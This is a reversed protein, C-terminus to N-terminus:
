RSARRAGLPALPQGLACIDKSFACLPPLSSASFARVHKYACARARAGTVCRLRAEALLFRAPNAAMRAGAAMLALAVHILVSVAALLWARAVQVVGM